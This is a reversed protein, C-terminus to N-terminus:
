VLDLVQHLCALNIVETLVSADNIKLGSWNLCAIHVRQGEVVTDVDHKEEMFEKTKKDLEVLLCAKMREVDRAQGEKTDYKCYCAFAVSPNWKGAARIEEIQYIQRSRDVYDALASRFVKPRHKDTERDSVGGPRTPIINVQHQTWDEVVRLMFPVGNYIAYAYFVIQQVEHNLSLAADNAALVLACTLVYIRPLLDRWSDNLRTKFLWRGRFLESESVRFVFSVVPLLILAVEVKSDLFDSLIIALMMPIILTGTVVTQALSKNRMANRMKIAKELRAKREEPNEKAPAETTEEARIAILTSLETVVVNLVLFVFLLIDKAQISKLMVVRLLLLVDASDTLVIALPMHYGYIFREKSDEDRHCLPVFILISIAVCAMAIAASAVPVVVPKALSLAGVAIDVLAELVMFARVGNNDKTVVEFCPVIDKINNSRVQLLAGLIVQLLAFVGFLGAFVDSLEPDPDVLLVVAFVCTCILVLIFVTCIYRSERVRKILEDLGPLKQYVGGYEGKERNERNGALMQVSTDSNKTGELVNVVVQESGSNLSVRAKSIALNKPLEQQALTPVTNRNSAVDQRRNDVRRTAMTELAESAELGFWEMPNTRCNPKELSVEKTAPAPIEPKPVGLATTILSM